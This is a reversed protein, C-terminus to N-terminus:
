GVYFRDRDLARYQIAEGVAEGRITDEGALDAITRAVKLIRDYARASLGLRDIAKELLDKAEGTLQCFNRIEKTGMQSNSEIALEKFREQQIRRAVAVRERIQESSEGAPANVLEEKKLPPVQVHIDIRDLLPGSIRKQYRVIENYSCSCEKVPHGLNGCPCSNMAGILMFEAPYTITISSRALTVRGEEMPQRLLELTEKKFEPLEDLFLVGNHALSIEGPQPINGGGVLGARTINHHPSRFPRQSIIGTGQPLIGTISYIKTVELAEEETMPPLITATRRALMTKGSGPPGILLVNHGGASAIELARKATEQGKIDCFDLNKQKNEKIAKGRKTDRAPYEGNILFNICEKLSRVGITEIGVREAESYNDAPIVLRKIGEQKAAIAMPLVGRVRRVEGSLSLEGFSATSNLADQPILGQAALIGVAIPLDYIPGEKKIDAPALNVTIKKTPFENVTNRIAAKVRERAERVATDPLGVIEFGPLGRSLYVEVEVVYGEIGLFALSKVSSLLKAGELVIKLIIKLKTEFFKEM